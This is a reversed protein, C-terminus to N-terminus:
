LSVERPARELMVLKSQLRPALTLTTADSVRDGRLILTDDNTLGLADATSLDFADLSVLLRGAGRKDEDAAEFEFVCVGDVDHQTVQADLRTSTSKLVVEWAVALPDAGEVVPPGALRDLSLQVYDTGNMGDTATIPTEITLSTPRTRFIRFGLRPSTPTAGEIAQGARRLREATVDFITRYGAEIANKGSEQSADPEEPIQVLVWRRQKSDIANQRWVAEGTSGSGAFFDIILDNDEPAVGSIFRSLVEVTKPDDFVKMDMLKDLRTQEPGRAKSFTSGPAWFEQEHLYRKLRIRKDLTEPFILRGRKDYEEMVSREVAWGKQPASYGKYPYMLNERPNPSRLDGSTWVGDDDMNAFYSHAKSPHGEPLERYWKRLEKSAPAYDTGFEDKLQKHKAYIEELGTKRERWKRDISELHSKDRAYILIYDQGGGTLKADNKRGGQWTIMDIFNTPGFIADMLLRLHHVENNDISALIVGDRQLLHRALTLRPFMMTLWPAHKKGSVEVRSTLMNGQEDLQGSSRLYQPEPVSFRDNYNFKEGTNYPPDIYILKAQGSYGSRLLKLVQLNDGEVLVDRANDWDVSSSPDPVLTATTSTRADQRAREIGPWSFTFAPKGMDLAGLANLLSSTDLDGDKFASPVLDQLQQLLEEQANPTAPPVHQNTM